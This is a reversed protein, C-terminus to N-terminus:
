PKVLMPEGLMASSPAGPIVKTADIRLAAERRDAERLREAREGVM